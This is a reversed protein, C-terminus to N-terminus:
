ENHHYDILTAPYIIGDPKIELKILACESPKMRINHGCFYNVMQSLTPNHGVLILCRESANEIKTLWTGVSTAYLEQYEDINIDKITNAIIQATELTRTAASSICLNPTLNHAICQSRIFQATQEVAKVGKDKLTREFDSPASFKAHGHRVIFINTIQSM